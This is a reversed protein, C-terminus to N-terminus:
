EGQRMREEALSHDDTVQSMGGSFVYARSDGVNALVSVDSGQQRGCTGHRDADYGHRTSRRQGPERAMRRPQGRFLGRSPGRLDAGARLGARTDRGGGPGCRAVSMVGMGDAVAYLNPRELPLDQNVDAGARRRDGLWIAVRDRSVEFVTSGIQLLDGKGLRMAQSIRELQRLHREDLRPGRGLAPRQAPLPPRASDVYLHRRAHVGWVGALTRHDARRRPRLHARCARAAAGGQPLTAGGAGRPEAPRPPRRPWASERRGATAPFATKRITAPSMEVWVARIVRLFFIFILAIVGWQM